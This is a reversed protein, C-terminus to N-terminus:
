IGVNSALVVLLVVVAFAVAVVMESCSQDHICDCINGHGPTAVLAVEVVVVVVPVVAVVVM